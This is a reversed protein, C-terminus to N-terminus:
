LSSSKTLIILTIPRNGKNYFIASQNSNWVLKMIQSPNNKLLSCILYFGQWTKVYLLGKFEEEWEPKLSFSCNILVITKGLPKEWQSDPLLNIIHTHWNNTEFM